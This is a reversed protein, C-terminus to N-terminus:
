PAHLILRTGAERVAGDPATWRAVIRSRRSSGAFAAAPADILVMATAHGGVPVAISAGQVALRATPLDALAMTATLPYPRSSTMSITVSQRIWEGEADAVRLPRATTRQVTLHAPERGALLVAWGGLVAAMLTAYIM